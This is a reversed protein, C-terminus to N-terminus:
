KAVCKDLVEQLKEKSIGLVSPLAEIANKMFEDDSELTTSFLFDEYIGQERMFAELAGWKGMAVFERYLLRKSYEVPLIPRYVPEFQPIADLGDRRWGVIRYYENSVSIPKAVDKCLYWGCDAIEIRSRSPLGVVVKGTTLSVGQVPLPRPSGVAISNTGCFIFSQANVLTAFLSLFIFCVMTM